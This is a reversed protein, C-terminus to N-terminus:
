RGPLPLSAVHAVPCCVGAQPFTDRAQHTLYAGFQRFQTECVRLEPGYRDALDATPVPTETM